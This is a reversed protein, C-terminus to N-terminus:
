SKKKKKINKRKPFDNKKEKFNPIISYPLGHKGPNVGTCFSTWAPASHPGPLVTLLPGSVGNDIIKKFTPLKGQNVWGSVVDYRAGDLGIVIVRKKRNDKKM